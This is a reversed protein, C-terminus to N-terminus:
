RFIMRFGQSTEFIKKILDEDRTRVDVFPALRDGLRRSEWEEWRKAFLNNWGKREQRLEQREYHLDTLGAVQQWDKIVGVIAVHTNGSFGSCGCYQRDVYATAMGRIWVQEESCIPYSGDEDDMDESSPMEEFVIEYGLHSLMGEIEVGSSVYNFVRIREEPSILGESFCGYELSRYGPDRNFKEINRVWVACGCPLKLELDSVSRCAIGLEVSTTEASMVEHGCKPCM